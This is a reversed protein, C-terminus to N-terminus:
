AAMLAAVVTNTETNLQEIDNAVAISLDRCLQKVKVKAAEGVLLTRFDNVVKVRVGKTAEIYQSAIAELARWKALYHLLTLRFGDNDYFLAVRDDTPFEAMNQKMGAQFTPAALAKCAAHMNRWFMRAEHLIAVVQKLAAIVQFLAAITV